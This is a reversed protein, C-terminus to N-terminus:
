KEFLDDLILAQSILGLSHKNPKLGFTTIMTPMIHKRTHTAEQFIRVKERLNQADAASLSLETSYFKIEFLNIVKDNRDIIIAIHRHANAFLSPYM